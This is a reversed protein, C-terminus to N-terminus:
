EWLNKTWVHKQAILAFTADDLPGKEASQVAADIYERSGIALTLTSVAPHTLAFRIALDLLLQGSDSAIKALPAIREAYRAASPKSLMGNAAIEEATLVRTLGGHDLVNRAIVGANRAQALPLLSTLPRSEFLNFVVQVGDIWGADMVQLVADHEHDQTSIGFAAIKGQAQLDRFTELWEPQHTWLYYWQHLEVFDLREAQLERLSTEVSERISAPTFTEELPVFQRWSKDSMPRIKTAIFPRPGRWEKLTRGIIAESGGYGRATDISTIGKELGHLLSPSVGQRLEEKDLHMAGYTIESVTSGTRGFARQKM